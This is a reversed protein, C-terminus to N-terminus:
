RIPRQLRYMFGLTVFLDRSRWVREDREQPDLILINQLGHLYRLEATLHAKQSLEYELGGRIEIRFDFQELGNRIAISTDRDEFTYRDTSSLLFGPVAGAGVMVDGPLGIPIRVAFLLPVDLYDFDFTRQYRIGSASVEDSKMGRSALEFEARFYLPHAFEFEFRLGGHVDLRAMPALPVHQVSGTSRGLGAHIGIRIEPQTSDVYQLSDSETSDKLPSSRVDSTDLREFTRTGSLSPEPFSTGGSTARVTPLSVICISCFLLHWLTRRVRRIHLPRGTV